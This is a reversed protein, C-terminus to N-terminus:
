QNNRLSRGSQRRLLHCRRRRRSPRPRGVGRVFPPAGPITGLHDLGTLDDETYLPKVRIGELTDWGLADPDRGKLEAEALKKWTDHMDTM